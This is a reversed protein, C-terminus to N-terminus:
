FIDKKYRLSREKEEIISKEFQVRENVSGDDNLLRLDITNPSDSSCDMLKLKCPIAKWVNKDDPGCGMLAFQVFVSM